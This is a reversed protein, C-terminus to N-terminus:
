DLGPAAGDIVELSSFVVDIRREGEWRCAVHHMPTALGAYPSLVSESEEARVAAVESLGWGIEEPNACHLDNLANFVRFEQVLHFRLTKTVPRDLDQRIRGYDRRRAAPPDVAAYGEWVYNFVLDLVTGERRWRVDELICEGFEYHMALSRRIEETTTATGPVRM